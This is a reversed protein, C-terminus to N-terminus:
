IRASKLLLSKHVICFTYFIELNLCKNKSHNRMASFDLLKRLPLNEVLEFLVLLQCKEKIRAKSQRKKKPFNNKQCFRRDNNPEPSVVLTMISLMSKM